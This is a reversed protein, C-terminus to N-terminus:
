RSASATWMATSPLIPSSPAPPSPPSPAPRNPSTPPRHRPVPPPHHHHHHHHARPPRLTHCLWHRLVCRLPPACGPDRKSPDRNPLYTPLYRPPQPHHHRYHRNSAFPSAISFPALHLRCFFSLCTPPSQLSPEKKREVM